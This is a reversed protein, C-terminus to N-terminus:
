SATKLFRSDDDPAGPSASSDHLAYIEHDLVRDVLLYGGAHLAMILPDKEGRRNMGFRIVAGPEGREVSQLVSQQTRLHYPRLEEARGPNKRIFTTAFQNELGEMMRSETGVVYGPWWAVISSGEPILRDIAEGVGTVSSIKWNAAQRSTDIGRLGVGSMTMQQFDLHARFVYVFLFFCGVGALAPRAAWSRSAASWCWLTNACEILGVILFPVLVGFYQVYAPNPIFSIVALVLIFLVVFQLERNLTWATATVVAFAFLLLPFQFALYRESEVTGVLVGLIHLKHEWADEVTQSTRGFHFGLNNFWFRGWDEMFFVSLSLTLCLGAIFFYARRLSQKRSHALYGCLLLPALAAFPLRVGTAIGLCLGSFLASDGLGSRLSRRYLFFALFLFLVSLSYTKVTLFSRLAMGNFTFLGAAVIGLRRGCVSTVSCFLAVAVLTTCVAAFTRAEYWGTGVMKMWAGYMYPLLPMQPYFFDSYLSEGNAILQGALAYFGEDKAIYRNWSLLLFVPLTIAAIAFLDFRRIVRDPSSNKSCESTM